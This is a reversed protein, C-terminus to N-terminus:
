WGTDATYNAYIQMQSTVATTFTIGYFGADGVGAAAASAHDTGAGDRVSGAAGTAHNYLTVTPTKAMPKYFSLTGFGSASTGASMFAKIAASSVVGPASAYNYTKQYYRLCEDLNQTFPKDILTTCNPGPEHQVFGLYFGTNVPLSLINTCGPGCIFNGAQWTDNAPSTYTSGAGFGFRFLYGASGSNLNWTASPTWVPLNPLPILTWQNPTSITCLKTLTYGSTPTNLTVSFSIPQTCLALVSISHTDSILERLLPGEVYQALQIYEGAALTAQQTAVSLTACNQSITYNTGPVLPLNAPNGQGFSLVGTATNKGCYWRDMWRFTNGAAVNAQVGVNRQDVEFNANGLANFSRLRIGTITSRPVLILNDSGLTAINGADASVVTPGNPGMPGGAGQTGGPSVLAGTPVITGPVPNPM